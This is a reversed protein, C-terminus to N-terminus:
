SIREGLIHDFEIQEL